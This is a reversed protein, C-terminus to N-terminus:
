LFSPQQSGGSHSTFALGLLSSCVPGHPKGARSGLHTIAQLVGLQFSCCEWPSAIFAKSINLLFAEVSSEKGLSYKINTARPHRSLLFIVPGNVVAGQGTKGSKFCHVRFQCNLCGSVNTKGRIIQLVRYVRPSKARQSLPNRGICKEM